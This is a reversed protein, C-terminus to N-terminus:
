AAGAIFARGQATLTRALAEDAAERRVCLRHFLELNYLRVLARKSPGQPLRRGLVEPITFADLNWFAPDAAAMAFNRTGEKRVQVFDGIHRAALERMLVKGFHGSAHRAAKLRAPLNVVFRALDIDLFPNRLEVSTMMSYADSHPLNCTQLFTATDHLLSAQVYREWPDPVAAVAAEIDARTVRREAEFAGAAAEDYWPSARDLTVLIGEDAPDFRDPAFQAEYHEYGGFLEDACDGGLLVKFGQARAARCLDHMPPGGGWRSPAVQDQIFAALEPLYGSPSQVAFHADSPRRKLIEPIVTLPIQEIGPSIKTFATLNATHDRAFWYVLSSDIGGSLLIGVPVDAVLHRRASQETLHRLEEILDDQDRSQNRALADADFMSWPAFYRELRVGADDAILAHGAPVVRIGDVMSRDVHFTGRTGSDGPTMLYVAYADRDPVAGFGLARLAAVSSAVAVQRGARAWYLPKQGFHDRAAILRREVTDHLAFAFMGRAAELAARWGWRAMAEILVETDAGTRPIHGEAMLRAGLAAYNYLEGNYVIRWRAGADEFPQNAADSLDIIGLRRHGAVFGDGMVLARADPGRRAMTDLAAEAAVRSVAREPDLVFVLGCM